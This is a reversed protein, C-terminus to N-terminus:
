SAPRLPHDAFFEWILDTAVISRTTFGVAAAIKESFDSGPWAHGGGDVRYLEVEAGPPCPFSLLTVDSAITSETPTPDCGNRAAWSATIEPITPGKVSPDVVGVEGLTRGSGDPAPLNAAADGLSGDYTVYPDVTGHIAIVPVPRSPSCGEVDRIGAVPAAAAIRESFACAVASTMFAGNSLGSVYVRNQDICLTQVADDIVGGIFAVDDAGLTDDWFAPARDGIQPAVTVFGETDALISFESMVVQIAATEFYGHLDIVLPLPESATATPPVHRLYFGSTPAVTLDVQQDGPPVPNPVSCGASPAAAVDAAAVTTPTSTTASGSETSSSSSCAAPVIAVLAVTVIAAVHRLRHM